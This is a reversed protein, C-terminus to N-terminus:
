PQTTTWMVAEKDAGRNTSVQTTEMDQNNYVISGHVHSHLYKKLIAATIKNGEYTYGSTSNIYWITMRNKIKQPLEMINEM